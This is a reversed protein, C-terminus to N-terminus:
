RLDKPRITGRLKGIGTRLDKWCAIKMDITSLSATKFGKALSRARGKRGDLRCLSKALDSLGPEHGVILAVDVRDDLAALAIEIVDGEALYLADDFRIKCSPPLYREFIRLSERTRISSSCLAIDVRRLRKACRKAMAEADWIGSPALPRAHDILDASDRSAKAHRLLLLRKMNPRERDDDSGVQLCAEFDMDSAACRRVERIAWLGERVEVGV